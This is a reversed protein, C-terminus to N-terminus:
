PVWLRLLPGLILAPLYDALPVKRVELIILAAAAVMLGGTVGLGDFLAPSRLMTSLWRAALTIAGQLALVPLAAMLVGAGFVRAFALAALGDLASKVLLTRPDGQLGEQAAGLVGMPGVCFLISCTVFGESFDRQRSKQARAFRDRAYRGLENAQRQFGLSKGIWNGLVLALLALGFQAAVRGPSGEVCMWVSRFGTYMALVGLLTRLFFQHRLSLERKASLGIVGGTVIAAANVVTGVVCWALRGARRDGLAFGIFRSAYRGGVRLAVM